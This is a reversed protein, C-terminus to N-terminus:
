APSGPTSTSSRSRAGGPTIRGGLAARAAPPRRLPTLAAGTGATPHASATGRRGPSHPRVRGVRRPTAAM